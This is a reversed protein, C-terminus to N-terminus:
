KKRTLAVIAIIIIALVLALGGIWLVQKDSNESTQVPAPTPTLTDTPSASASITPEPTATPVPTPTAVSYGAIVIYVPQAMENLTYNVGTQKDGMVAEVYYSDYPIGAFGFTGPTGSENSTTVTPNGEIPFLQNTGNVLHYITVSAEPIAVGAMDAVTGNIYGTQAIVYTKSAKVGTRRDLLIATVTATGPKVEDSTLNYQAIGSQNTVVMATEPINLVSNNDTQLFIGINGRPYDGGGLLVQLTITSNQGAQVPMGNDVFRVGDPFPSQAWGQSATCVLFVASLLLAIM